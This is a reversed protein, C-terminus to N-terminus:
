ENESTILSVPTILNYSRLWQDIFNKHVQELAKKGFDDTSAGGETISSLASQIEKLDKKYFALLEARLEAQKELIWDIGEKHGKITEFLESREDSM